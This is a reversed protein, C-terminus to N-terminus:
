PRRARRQDVTSGSEFYTPREASVDPEIRACVGRQLDIMGGVETAGRCAEVTAIHEVKRIKSEAFIRCKTIRGVAAVRAPGHRHTVARM